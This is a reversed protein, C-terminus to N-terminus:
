YIIKINFRKETDNISNKLKKKNWLINKAWFGATNIGTKNWNENKKHRSIYAEKKKDNKNITYDSYGAAGFHIKKNTPTVVMFKKNTRTSKKFIYTNM